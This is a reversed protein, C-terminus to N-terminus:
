DMKEVIRKLSNMNRATARFDFRRAVITALKSEAVGDVFDVHYARTGATVREPGDYDKAFAAFQVPDYRDSAFLTHVKKPDGDAAFPNEAIAAALEARNRIAAFSSIGFREHLIFAMKEAIGDSPREDHTFLVNGSAVVTEVDDFGEREIADRLDVMRLRNGGVNISGLFAVYRMSM